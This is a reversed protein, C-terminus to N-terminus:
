VNQCEQLPQPHNLSDQSHENNLQQQAVKLVSDDMKEPNENESPSANAQILDETENDSQQEPEPCGDLLGDGWDIPFRTVRPDSAIITRELEEIIPIKPPELRMEEKIYENYVYYGVRIFEKERYFAQILVVTVGVVDEPPIKSPDPAKADFEFQHRGTPVPGVLISDLEQDLSKNYASSVYVIKWELDEELREYCEFTIKFKLPDTFKSKEELVVVDIINVRAM